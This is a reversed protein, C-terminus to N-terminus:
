KPSLYLPKSDEDVIQCYTCCYVPKIYVTRNKCIPCNKVEPFKIVNSSTM